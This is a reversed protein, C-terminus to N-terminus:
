RGYGGRQHLINCVLFLLFGPPWTCVHFMGIVKEFNVKPLSLFAKGAAFHKPMQKCYQFEIDYIHLIKRVGHICHTHKCTDSLSYDATQTEGKVFNVGSSPCYCGHHACAHARIGTVDKIGLGLNADLIVWFSCELPEYAGTTVVIIYM